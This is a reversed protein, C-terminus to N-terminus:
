AKELEDKLVKNVLDPNAQGKTAKMVQGVFHAYLKTKGKKYEDLQVANEKLVNQVVSVIEQENSILNLGLAKIAQEADVRHDFMYQFVDKALKGSLTGEHVLTLLHGLQQPSVPSHSLSIGSENILKLLEVMIWNSVKKGQAKTQSVTQEFYSALEMSSILVEADYLPIQYVQIFRKKKADPLEPLTSRLRHIVTKEVVLELLDPEPFYRYDHVDSKDRLVFTANTTM